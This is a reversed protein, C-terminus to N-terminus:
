EKYKKKRKERDQRNEFWKRYHYLYFIFRTLYDEKIEPNSKIKILSSIFGNFEFNDKNKKKHIFIDIWENFSMNLFNIIKENNAEEKLIGNIISENYDSKSSLIQKLSSKLMILNDEKNLNNNFGKYEIKKLKIPKEKNNKYENIYKESFKYLNRIICNKVRQMMNDPCNGDHVKQKGKNSNNEENIENNNEKKIRIEITEQTSNENEKEKNNISKRKKKKITNFKIEYNKELMNREKETLYNLGIKADKFSEISKINELVNEFSSIEDNKSTQNIINTKKQRLDLLTAKTEKQTEKQPM